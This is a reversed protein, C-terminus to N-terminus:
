INSIKYGKATQVLEFRELSTFSIEEDEETICTFKVVANLISSKLLSLEEESDASKYVNLLSIKKVEKISGSMKSDISLGSAKIFEEKTTLGFYTDAEFEEALLCEQINKTNCKDVAKIFDSITKQEDSVSPIVCVMASITGIVILLFAIFISKNKVIM